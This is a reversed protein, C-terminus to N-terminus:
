AALTAKASRMVRAIEAYLESVIIPKAVYGSMGMALFRERDGNMTDATLAIVPLGSWSQRAERLKRITAEGDLEPMHVDLLVLDFAQTDLLELVRHGNDAEVIEVELPSMLLSVVRRNIANDDAVLIRTGSALVSGAPDPSASAEVEAPRECPEVRFTLTFASGKGPESQLTIDGGMLIALRRSIALGLGTGGYTREISGDAQSFKAFLRSQAASSIGIGTDSVCVSVLNEASPGAPVRVSVQVKGGTTFKVANSVLNGICQRVRVADFRGYYALAPDLDIELRTGKEAARPAFLKVASLITAGLDNPEPRIEVKGAEIKSLDLVDNVIALLLNGSDRIDSVLVKQPESMPTTELVQAMGLVGNLPTRIEHSMNALFESKARSALRAESLAADLRAQTSKLRSSMMDAFMVGLCSASVSAMAAIVGVTIILRPDHPWGLSFQILLAMAVSVITSFVTMVVVLIINLIPRETAESVRLLKELWPPTRSPM